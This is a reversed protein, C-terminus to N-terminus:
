RQCQQSGPLTGEVDLFPVAAVRTAAVPQLLFTAEDPLHEVPPDVEDAEDRVSLVLGRM